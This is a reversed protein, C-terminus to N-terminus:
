DNGHDGEGAIFRELCLRGGAGAGRVVEHGDRQRRPPLQGRRTHGTDRLIGVINAACGPVKHIVQSLQSGLGDHTMGRHVSVGLPPVDCFEATNNSPAFIAESLDGGVKAADVDFAATFETDGVHYGGLRPHMLGPIFGTRLPTRIYRVGQVLSSACNGVGIIAVRIPTM